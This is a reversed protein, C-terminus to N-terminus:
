FALGKVVAHEVQKTNILSTDRLDSSGPTLDARLGSKTIAEFGM